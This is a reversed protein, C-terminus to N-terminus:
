KSVLPTATSAEIAAKMAEVAEDWNVDGMASVKGDLAVSISWGNGQLVLPTYSPVTEVQINM